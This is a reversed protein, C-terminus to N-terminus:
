IGDKDDPLYLLEEGISEADDSSRLGRWREIDVYYALSKAAARAAIYELAVRARRPSQQPLAAMREALRNMRALEERLREDPHEIANAEIRKGTDILLYMSHSSNFQDFLALRYWGHFFEKPEESDKGDVSRKLAGEWRNRLEAERASLARDREIAEPLLGICASARRFEVEAADHLTKKFADMEPTNEDLGLKRRLLIDIADGHTYAEFELEFWNQKTRRMDQWAHTLEHIMTNVLSELAIDGDIPPFSVLNTENDYYAQVNPQEILDAASMAEIHISGDAIARGADLAFAELNELIKTKPASSILRLSVALAVLAFLRYLMDERSKVSRIGKCLAYIEDPALGTSLGFSLVKVLMRFHREGLPPLIKEILKHALDPAESLVISPDRKAEIRRTIEEDRKKRLKDINDYSSACRQLARPLADRRMRAIAESNDADNSQRAARLRELAANSFTAFLGFRDPKSSVRQQCIGRANMSELLHAMGPVRQDAPDSWQAPMYSNQIPAIPKGDENIAIRRAREGPECTPIEDSFPKERGGHDLPADFRLFISRTEDYALDNRWCAGSAGFREAFYDAREESIPRRGYQPEDNRDLFGAAANSDSRDAALRYWHGNELDACPPIQRDTMEM